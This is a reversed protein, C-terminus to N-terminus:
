ASTAMSHGLRKNNSAQNSPKGDSDVDASIVAYCVNGINADIVVHEFAPFDAAQSNFSASVFLSAVLCFSRASSM